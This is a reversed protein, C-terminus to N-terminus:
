SAEHAAEGRRDAILEDVVSVGAPAAGAFLGRGQDAISRYPRLRLTGDTEVTVHIQTGYDLKLAARVPSPLVLRGRDGMLITFNLPDGRPGESEAAAVTASTESFARSVPKTAPLRSKHGVRKERKTSKPIPM